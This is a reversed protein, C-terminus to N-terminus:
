KYKGFDLEYPFHNKRKEIPPLQMYDGYVRVLDEHINNPFNLEIDEFKIKKLPYIDSVKCLNKYPTTNCLFDIYKTNKYHNCVTCAEKCKLALWKKSIHLASMLYHVIACIIHVIKAKSGKFGLVPFPISRLILLKSFFWAKFFQKNREKKNNSVKDHPYLDLFIGLECNINKLAYERFKTGKLMIRTTMLPFNPNEDTNM